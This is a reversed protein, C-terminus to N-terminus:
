AVGVGPVMFQCGSLGYIQLQLFAPSEHDGANTRELIQVTKRSSNEIIWSRGDSAKM